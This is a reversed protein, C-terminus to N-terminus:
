SSNKVLSNVLKGGGTTTNFKDQPTQKAFLNLNGKETIRMYESKTIRM